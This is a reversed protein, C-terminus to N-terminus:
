DPEEASERLRYGVGRVTHVLWSANGLKKRIATVHVDIARDTVFVDAGMAKDMLQDRTLVRGRATILATLLKFETLTLKITEGSCTAEHKSTDITLPGARLTGDATPVATETRRLVSNLRALLIKMSFPKTVYDDAGLTLGVVVDTEEGKATLMIIPIPNTRPEAKLRRAVDLGSIGPLMLDLIIIDPLQATAVELADNGTGAAVVDYGNRALNFSILEVLDKEDDVVLVRKKRLSAAPASSTGGRSAPSALSFGVTSTSRSSDHIPTM